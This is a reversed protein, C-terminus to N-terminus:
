VTCYSVCVKFNFDNTLRRDALRTANRVENFPDGANAILTMPIAIFARCMKTEIM